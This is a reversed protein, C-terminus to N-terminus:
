RGFCFFLFASCAEEHEEGGGSWTEMSSWVVPSRSLGVAHSPLMSKSFQIRPDPQLWTLHEPSAAVELSQARLMESPLHIKLAYANTLPQCGSVPPTSLAFASLTSPAERGSNRAGCGYEWGSSRRGVAARMRAM